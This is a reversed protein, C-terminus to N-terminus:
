KSSTVDTPEKKRLQVKMSTNKKLVPSVSPNFIRLSKSQFFHVINSYHTKDDRIRLNMLHIQTMTFLFSDAWCVVYCWSTILKTKNNGLKSKKKRKPLCRHIWTSRHCPPAWCCMWGCCSLIGSSMQHHSCRRSPRSWWSGQSGPQEARCCRTRGEWPCFQADTWTLYSHPTLARM